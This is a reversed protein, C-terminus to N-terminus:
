TKIENMKSLMEPILFHIKVHPLQTDKKKEKKIHRRTESARSAYESLSSVYTKKNKM